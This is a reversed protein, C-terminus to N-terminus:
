NNEVLLGIVFVSSIGMTPLQKLVTGMKSRRNCVRLMTDRARAVECWGCTRFSVLRMDGTGSLMTNVTDLLVYSM